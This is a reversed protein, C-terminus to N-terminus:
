QTSAASAMPWAMRRGTYTTVEVTTGDTELTIEGDRDTRLIAAGSRRYRAVVQPAPHGFPNDRGSSFVVAKPDLADVFEFSSSSASGHHAAKLVRFPAPEFKRAIVKEVERTVDGPLVISVGGFRVEVVISDDNRVDQREWGPPPPHWVHLDAGGMRVQDGAQMTRWAAGAAEVQERLAATLAHPPVPAGYWVDRPLFDRLVSPAGGIHDLDGHTIELTDLHRVGAAWLAPAVVRAGLDFTGPTGGADVLLSYGGPFQVLTSDGQGVDLFTVKLTTRPYLVAAVATVPEVLIWLSAIAAAAASGRRVMVARGNPWLASAADTAAFLWGGVAGYYVVLALLAPPPLRYAAWPALDVLATSEALGWAGAHACWGVM